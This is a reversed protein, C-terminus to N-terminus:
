RGGEPTALIYLVHATARLRRGVFGLGWDDVAVTLCQEGQVDVFDGLGGSEASGAVRLRPADQATYFKFRARTRYADPMLAAERSSVPQISGPVFFTSAAGRVLEGAVWASEYRTIEWPRVALNFKAM